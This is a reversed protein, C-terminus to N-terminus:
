SGLGILLKSFAVSLVSRWQHPRFGICQCTKAKSCPMGVEIEVINAMTASKELGSSSKWVPQFVFSNSSSGRLFPPARVLIARNIEMFNASNDRETWILSVFAMIKKAAPFVDRAQGVVEPM